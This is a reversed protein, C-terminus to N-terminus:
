VWKERDRREEVMRQQMESLKSVAYSAAMYVGGAIGGLVIFPRRRRYLFDRTSQLYSAM